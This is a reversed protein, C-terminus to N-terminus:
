LNDPRYAVSARGYSCIMANGAFSKYERAECKGEIIKKVCVVQDNIFDSTIPIGHGPMIMDFEKLRAQQKQLTELYKRLPTCNELFLWVQINNNDGSFLLKNEIDLFCISGPTHGPTEM